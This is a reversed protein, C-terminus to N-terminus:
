LFKKSILPLNQYNDRRHGFEYQGTYGWCVTGKPFVKIEKIPYYDRNNIEILAAELAVEPSAAERNIYYNHTPNSFKFQIDYKM